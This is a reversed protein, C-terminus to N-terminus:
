EFFAVPANGVSSCTSPVRPQHDQKLAAAGAAHRRIDVPSHGPEGRGNGKDPSTRSATKHVLYSAHIAPAQPPRNAIIDIAEVRQRTHRQYVSIEEISRRRVALEYRTSKGL